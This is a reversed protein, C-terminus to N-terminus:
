ISSLMQWLKVVNDHVQFPDMPVCATDSPEPLHSAEKKASKREVQTKLVSYVEVQSITSVSINYIKGNSPCADNCGHSHGPALGHVEMDLMASRSAEADFM